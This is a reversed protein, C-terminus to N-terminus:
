RVVVPVAPSYVLEGACAVRVLAWWRGPEAWVPPAVDFALALTGRRPVVGGVINPGLWEWTGWPSILHAEVTLDAYSDTGVTVRLQATDGAAIDIGQPEDVLRLLTDDHHGVTIVAVDEVTQHW